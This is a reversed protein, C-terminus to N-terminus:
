LNAILEVKQPYDMGKHIMSHVCVFASTRYSNNALFATFTPVTPGFLELSNWDVLDALVELSENVTEEDFVAYNVLVQNFLFLIDNIALARIGDKM